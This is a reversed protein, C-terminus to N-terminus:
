ASEDTPSPSATEPGPIEEGDDGDDEGPVGRAGGSGGEVTGSSLVGPGNDEEEDRFRYAIASLLHMFWSSRSRTDPFAQFFEAAFRAAEEDTVLRRALFEQGALGVQDLVVDAYLEVDRKEDAWKVLTPIFRGLQQQWGPKDGGPQNQVAEGVTKGEERQKKFFGVLESVMPAMLSMEDGGSAAKGLKEGIEFGRDFVDWENLKDGSQNRGALAEMLPQTQTQLLQVLKLAADMANDGQVPGMQQPHRVEALVEKLLMLLVSDQTAQPQPEPEPRSTAREPEKPPGAIHFTKSGAYTYDSRRVEAKYKGGGCADIIGKYSFDPSAIVDVGEWANLTKSWRYLYVKGPEEGLQQLVGDIDDPREESEQVEEVDEAGLEPEPKPKKTQKKAAM